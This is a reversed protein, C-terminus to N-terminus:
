PLFPRREEYVHKSDKEKIKKAERPHSKGHTHSVTNRGEERGEERGKKRGNARGNTRVHTRANERSQSSAIRSRRPDGVGVPCRPKPTQAPIVGLAGRRRGKYTHADVGTRIASSEASGGGDGGDGRAWPVDKEGKPSRRAM